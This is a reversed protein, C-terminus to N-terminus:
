YGNMTWCNCVLCSEPDDELKVMPFNILYEESEGGRYAPKVETEFQKEAQFLAKKQKQLEHWQDPGVLNEVAERFRKNLGLSGAM